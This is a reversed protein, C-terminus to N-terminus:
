DSSPLLDRRHQNYRSSFTFFNDNSIWRIGDPDDPDCRHLAIADAQGQVEWTIHFNVPSLNCFLDCGLVGSDYALNTRGATSTVSVAANWM